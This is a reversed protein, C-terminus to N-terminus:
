LGLRVYGLDLELLSADRWKEKFLLKEQRRRTAFDHFMNDVTM